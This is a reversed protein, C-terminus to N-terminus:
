LRVRMAKGGISAQELELTEAVVAHRGFGGKLRDVPRDTAVPLPGGAQAEGVGLDVVEAVGQQQEAQEDVAEAAGVQALVQRLEFAARGMGDARAGDGILETAQAQM